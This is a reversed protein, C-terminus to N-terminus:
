KVAEVPLKWEGWDVMANILRLETFHQLDTARIDAEEMVGEALLRNRATGKLLPHAPTLWKVGDFLAVNAISTDTLLRGKVILVDDCDGRQGFVAQLASRDTSKLSYDIEDAEVMRLSAIPRLVYPAISIEEIGKESYVFRLKHRSEPLIGKYLCEIDWDDTTQWLRRRTRNLRENHWKVNWMRGEEVRITEVYQHM